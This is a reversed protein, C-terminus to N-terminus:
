RLAMPSIGELVGNLLFKLLQASSGFSLLPEHTYAM